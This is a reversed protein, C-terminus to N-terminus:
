KLSYAKFTYRTNNHWSYRNLIIAPHGQADPGFLFSQQQARHRQIVGIERIKNQAVSQASCPGDDGLRIAQSKGPSVAQSHEIQQLM